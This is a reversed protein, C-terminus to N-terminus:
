SAAAPTATTLGGFRRARRAYDTLAATLDAAGFDPWLAESFHIEAYALQWLLFNSLRREGGTRIVLDVDGLDPDYFYHQFSKEDLDGLIEPEARAARALRAAADVIERRGGYNVAVRLIRGSGGSTREALAALRRALDRPLDDLRGLPRFRIGNAVLRDGEREVYSALLEFLAAVEAPPRKWNETSFAFLTLEPLGLRTAAEVVRDVARAGEVHGAARALGRREAWRGNGDMIIATRPLTM